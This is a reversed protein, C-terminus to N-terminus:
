AGLRSPPPDARFGEPFLGVTTTGPLALVLGLPFFNADRDVLVVDVDGHQTRVAELQRILASLKM